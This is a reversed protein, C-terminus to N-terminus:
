GQAKRQDIQHPLCAPSPPLTAPQHRTIAQKCPMAPM